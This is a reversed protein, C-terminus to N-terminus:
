FKQTQLLNAEEENPPLSLAFGATEFRGGV